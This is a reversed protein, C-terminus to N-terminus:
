HSLARLERGCCSHFHGPLAYSQMEWKCCGAIDDLSVHLDSEIGLVTNGGGCLDRIVRLCLAHSQPGPLAATVAPPCHTVSSPEGAKSCCENVWLMEIQLDQAVESINRGSKLDGLVQACTVGHPPHVLGAGDGKQASATATNAGGGSGGNTANRNRVAPKAYSGAVGGVSHGQAARKPEQARRAQEARRYWSQAEAESTTVGLGNEYLVALNHMAGPVGAAAARSYQEYAEHYRGAKQLVRGYLFEYHPQASAAAAKCAPLAEGVQISPFRVGRGVQSPDRPDGALEDCRQRARHTARQTVAVSASRAHASVSVTLFLLNFATAFVVASCLGGSCQSM